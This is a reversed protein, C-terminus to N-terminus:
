AVVGVLEGVRGTRHEGCTLDRDHEALETAAPRRGALACRGRTLRPPRLDHAPRM